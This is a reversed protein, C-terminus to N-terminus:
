NVKELLKEYLREGLTNAEDLKNDIRKNTSSSKLNYDNEFSDMSLRNTEVNNYSITKLKSKIEDFNNRMTKEITNISPKLFNNYIQTEINSTINEFKEEIKKNLGIFILNFIVKKM